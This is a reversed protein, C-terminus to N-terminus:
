TRDEAQYRREGTRPDIFVRTRLQSTPDVFVESAREFRPELPGLPEGGAPGPRAATRDVADSRYRLRELAAAGLLAIGILVLTPGGIFAGKGGAALVILGGFATLLGSAILILRATGLM